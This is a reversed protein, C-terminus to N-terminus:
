VAICKCSHIFTHIYILIGLFISSFVALPSDEVFYILGALFFSSVTIVFIGFLIKSIKLM